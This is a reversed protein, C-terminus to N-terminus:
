IGSIIERIIFFYNNIFYNIFYFALLKKFLDLKSEGLLLWKKEFFEFHEQWKESYKSSDME